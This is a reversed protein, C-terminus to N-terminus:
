SRTRELDTDTVLKPVLGQRILLDRLEIEARGPRIRAHFRRMENRDLASHLYFYPNGNAGPHGHQWGDRYRGLRRDWEGGGRQDILFGRRYLHEFFERESIDPFYHKRYVKPPMGSGAEIAELTAVRPALEAVATEAKEARALAARKDEIAKVYRRAAELEDLEERVEAERAKVAFYIRGQAVAPKTDDGAMCTLYAAFRSLRYDNATRGAGNQNKKVHLFNSSSSGEGEILALAARAKVIITEFADWRAYQMLPMLERGLWYEGREDVRRIADFPSTQDTAPIAVQTM